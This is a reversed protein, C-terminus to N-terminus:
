QLQKRNTLSSPLQIEKKAEEVSILRRENVSIDGHCRGNSDNAAPIARSILVDFSSSFVSM